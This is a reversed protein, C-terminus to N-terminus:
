CLVECTNHVALPVAFAGVGGFVDVVCSHKPVLTLITERECSLRSNWYVEGFNLKYEIGNEKLKTELNKSGALLELEPVRFENSLNEKKNVVSRLHPNKHLCVQGIAYKYPLQAVQLNYHAIHGIIEFSTPIPTGNMVATLVEETSLSKYTIPFTHSLTTSDYSKLTDQAAQSLQDLDSTVSNDFLILRKYPDSSDRVIRPIRPRHLWHKVLEPEKLLSNIKTCEVSVGVLTMDKQFSEQDVHSKHADESVELPM